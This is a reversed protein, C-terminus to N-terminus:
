QAFALRERRVARVEGALDVLAATVNEQTIDLGLAVRATPDAALLRAKRGGTAALSGDEYALGLACLEAACQAVTPVSLGLATALSQRSQRGQRLLLQLVRAPNGTHHNEM